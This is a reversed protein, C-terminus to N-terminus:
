MTVISPSELYIPCNVSSATAIPQFSIMDHELALRPWFGGAPDGTSVSMGGVRRARDPLLRVAAVEPGRLTSVGRCKSACPPPHPTQLNPDSGLSNRRLRPPLGLRTTVTSRGPSRDM